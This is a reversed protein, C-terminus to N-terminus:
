LSAWRIVPARTFKRCSSVKRATITLPEAERADSSSPMVCGATLRDM